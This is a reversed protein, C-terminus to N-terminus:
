NMMQKDYRDLFGALVGVGSQMENFKHLAYQRESLVDMDKSACMQERYTYKLGELKGTNALDDVFSKVKAVEPNEKNKTNPLGIVFGAVNNVFVIDRLKNAIKNISLKKRDLCCYLAVFDFQQHTIAVSFCEELINIGVLSSYERLAQRRAIERGKQEMAKYLNYPKVYKM